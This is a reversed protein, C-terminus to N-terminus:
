LVLSFGNELHLQLGSHKTKSGAAAWVPQLSRVKLQTRHHTFNLAPSSCVPLHATDARAGARVAAKREMEQLCSTCPGRATGWLVSTLLPSGESMDDSRGVPFFIEYVNEGAFLFGTPLFLLKESGTHLSSFDLIFKAMHVSHQILCFQLQLAITLSSAGQSQDSLTM